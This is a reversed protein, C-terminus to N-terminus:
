GSGCGPTGDEVGSGAPPEAELGAAGAARSYTPVITIFSSLVFLVPSSYVISLFHSRSVQRRSCQNVNMHILLHNLVALFCEM